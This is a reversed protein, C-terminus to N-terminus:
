IKGVRKRETKKGMRVGKKIGNENRRRTGKMVEEYKKGKKREKKRGQKSKENEAEKRKEEEITRDGIGKQEKSRNMM